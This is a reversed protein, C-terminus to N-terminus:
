AMPRSRNKLLKLGFLGALGSGLLLLASPEPVQGFVLANPAKLGSAFISRRGDPAFELIDGVNPNVL